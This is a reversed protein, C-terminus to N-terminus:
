QWTLQYVKRWTWIPVGFKAPKYWATVQMWSIAKKVKDWKYDLRFSVPTSEPFVINGMPVKQTTTLTYQTTNESDKEVVETKGYTTFSFHKLFSWGKTTASPGWNQNVTEDDVSVLLFFPKGERNVNVGGITIKGYTGKDTLHAVARAFAAEDVKPSAAQAGSALVMLGIVLAGIFKM